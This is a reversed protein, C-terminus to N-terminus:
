GSYESSFGRTFGLTLSFAFLRFLRRELILKLALKFGVDKLCFAGLYLSVYGLKACANFAALGDASGIEGATVSVNIIKGLFAIRCQGELNVCGLCALRNEANTHSARRAITHNGIEKRYLYVSSSYAVIGLKLKLNELVDLVEVPLFYLNRYYLKVRAIVNNFENLIGGAHVKVIYSEGRRCGELIATLYREASM